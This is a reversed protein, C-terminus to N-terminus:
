TLAQWCSLKSTTYHEQRDLEWMGPTGARGRDCTSTPWDPSCGAPAPTWCTATTSTSRSWTSCTASSALQLQDVANNGSVVPGIGRWGPVEPFERPAPLGGDLSYVVQTPGGTSRTCCGAVAGHTEERLRAPVAGEAHLRLRPDVRLPLGLEQRAAGGARRCRPRRPRWSRGARGTCCCSSCCRAASCRRAWPGPASFQAVLRGRRSRGTSGPTSTARRASTCRSTRRRRSASSTARTRAPRHVHRPRGPRHRRHRGRRAPPRGADGRPRAAGHRARHRAGLAVLREPLDGPRGRVADAGPRHGRGGAPGARDVAAAGRRRHQARRHRAGHGLGHRAHDGAVNTGPLYRRTTAAPEVPALEVRGGNRADLLAAFTPCSDLDPIPWWDIRGDRAVLAVTRTDGIAAYSRLDAYGDPREPGGDTAPDTAPETAPDLEPAPM